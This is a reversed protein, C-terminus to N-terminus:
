SYIKCHELLFFFIINDFFIIINQDLDRERVEINDYSFFQMSTLKYSIQNILNNLFNKNLIKNEIEAEKKQRM